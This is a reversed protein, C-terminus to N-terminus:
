ITETLLNIKLLGAEVEEEGSGDEFRIWVFGAHSPKKNLLLMAERKKLSVLLLPKKIKDKAHSHPAATEVEIGPNHFPLTANGTDTDESSDTDETDDIDSTPQRDEEETPEPETKPASAPLVPEPEPEPEPEPAPAPASEPEQTPQQDKPTNPNKMREALSEVQGRTVEHGSAIWEEIAIEVLERKKDWLKRLELVTKPSALRGLRFLNEIGSPMDILALHETIFNASKGLSHAIDKKKDGADIRKQIFLALEIAKLDDRQLNEIVQDYSDHTEDVFAPITEKGALLSARFRRAGYNLIWRDPNEPNRRVSIPSKVGKLKISNALEQLSEEDFVHRPQNVDEDILRLAINLPEGSQSVGDPLSSPTTVDGLKSLDLM